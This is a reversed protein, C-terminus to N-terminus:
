ATHSTTTLSTEPTTTKSYRNTSVMALIAEKGKRQLTAPARPGIFLQKALQQTITSGGQVIRGSKLNDVAARAIALLDFGDNHYFSRDEIAITAKLMMPAVSGLPVVIRHDGQQAIDALLTGHRDYVLLDQPLGASSIHAVPLLPSVMADAVPAGAILLMAGVTAIVLGLSQLKRIARRHHRRRSVRCALSLRTRTTPQRFPGVNTRRRISNTIIRDVDGGSASSHPVKPARPLVARSM